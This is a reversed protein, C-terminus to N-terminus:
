ALSRLFHWALLFAGQKAQAACLSQQPCEIRQIRPDVAAGFRTKVTQAIGVAIAFDVRVLEAHMQIASPFMAGMGDDQARVSLAEIHTRPVM